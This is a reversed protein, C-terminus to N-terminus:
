GIRCRRDCSGRYAKIPHNRIPSPPDPLRASQPTHIPSHPTPSEVFQPDNSTASAGLTTRWLSESLVAVEPAGPRAEDEGFLRGVLPRARLLEFLGPTVRAGRVQRPEEIGSLLPIEHTYPEIRDFLQRQGQWYRAVDPNLEFSTLDLRKLYTQLEVLREADPFPAPRLLVKDVVSFIATTAGIGLALTLVLALSLGPRRATTRMAFRLDQAIMSEGRRRGAIYLADRVATVSRMFLILRAATASEGRALRDGLDHTIESEWELRWEDRLHEPVLLSIARIVRVRPGM